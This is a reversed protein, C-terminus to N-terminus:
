FFYFIYLKTLNPDNDNFLHFPIKIELFLEFNNKNILDKIKEFIEINEIMNNLFFIFLYVFYNKKKKKKFKKMILM